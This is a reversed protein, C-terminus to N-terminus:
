GIVDRKHRCVMNKGRVDLLQKYEEESIKGRNKQVRFYALINNYEYKLMGLEIELEKIQLGLEELRAAKESAVEPRM